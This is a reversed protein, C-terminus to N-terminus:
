ISPYNVSLPKLDKRKAFSCFDSEKTDAFHFDDMACEETHFLKCDKCRIVEALRDSRKAEEIIEDIIKKLESAAISSRRM